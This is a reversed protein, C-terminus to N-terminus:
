ELIAPSVGPLCASNSLRSQLEFLAQVHHPNTTGRRDLEFISCHTHTAQSFCAETVTSGRQVVFNDDNMKALHLDVAILPTLKIGGAAPYPWWAHESMSILSAFLLGSSQASTILLM